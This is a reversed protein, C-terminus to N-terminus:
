NRLCIGITRSFRVKWDLVM